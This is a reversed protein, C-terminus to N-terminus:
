NTLCINLFADRKKDERLIRGLWYGLELYDTYGFLLGKPM